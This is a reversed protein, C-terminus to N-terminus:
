CRQRREVSKDTQEPILYLLLEMVLKLEAWYVQGTNKKNM